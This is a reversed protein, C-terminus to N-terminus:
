LIEWKEDRFLLRMPVVETKEVSEPTPTGPLFPQLDHLDDFQSTIFHQLFVLARKTLVTTGDADPLIDAVTLQSRSGQPSQDYWNVEAPADRICIALRFTVNLMQSHHDSCVHIHMITPISRLKDCWYLTHVGQREHRAHCHINLNDYAWLWHGSQVKSLLEAEQTLSLLYEWTACYSM